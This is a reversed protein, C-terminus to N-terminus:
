QHGRLPVQMGILTRDQVSALREAGMQSGALSGTHDGFPGWATRFVTPVAPSSGSVGQGGTVERADGSTAPCPESPM